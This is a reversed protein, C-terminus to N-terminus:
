KRQTADFMRQNKEAAEQSARMAAEAMAEARQAKAEAEAIRAEYAENTNTCASLGAAALAILAVSALKKM